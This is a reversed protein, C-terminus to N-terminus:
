IRGSKRLHASEIAKERQIKSLYASYARKSAFLEPIIREPTSSNDLIKEM